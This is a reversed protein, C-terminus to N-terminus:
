VEESLQRQHEYDDFRTGMVNVLQGRCKYICCEGHTRELTWYVLNCKECQVKIKIM